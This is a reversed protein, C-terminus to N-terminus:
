IVKSNTVSTSFITNKQVIFASENIIMRLNQSQGLDLAGDYYDCNKGHSSGEVELVEGSGNNSKLELWKSNELLVHTVNKLNLTKKSVLISYILLKYLKLLSRLLFLAREEDELTEGTKVM